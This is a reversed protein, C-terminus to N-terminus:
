TIKKTPKKKVSFILILFFFLGINIIILKILWDYVKPFIKITLFKQKKGHYFLNIEDIGTKKIDSWYLLNVIKTSMPALVDIDITNQSFKLLNNKSLLNIKKNYLFINGQNKIMVKLTEKNSTIVRDKYSLIETKIIENDEPIKNVAEVIVDKTDSIKYTGAPLPYQPEKGHIVFAIHNLDFSSFYDIGSTSEWTPDIDLWQNIKKDFFEPWAHLQDSVLSIPRLYDSSFGYGQVERSYYGKERALAIFADVYETCVVNDKNKLAFDAGLRQNKDGIKEYNYKFNKVLFYYIDKIDKLSQYEDVNSIQWKNTASLLYNSQEKLRKQEILILEPRANATILAYGDFNITLKEKPKLLYKALYNGDIDLYTEIPEPIIKNVFLKQHSTDPPLAIETYIPILRDNKLNYNLNLHYYQNEGFIAYITREKPNEWYIKNDRILSVQPKAVSIKKNIGDPLNVIVRYYGGNKQEVTPIILEWINGNVRLLNNQYFDLRINTSKNRGAEENDLGVEIVSDKNTIRYNVPVNKNNIYGDLDTIKFLSPFFLSFKKVIIDSRLYTININFVVKTKIQNNEPLIFYNIQYDTKFSEQGYISKPSLLLLILICFIKFFPRLIKIYNLQWFIYGTKKM